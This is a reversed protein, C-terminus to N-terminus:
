KKRREERVGDREGRTVTDDDVLFLKGKFVPCATPHRGCELASSGSQRNRLFGGGMM